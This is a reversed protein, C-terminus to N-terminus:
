IVGSTRLSSALDHSSHSGLYSFYTKKRWAALKGGTYIFELNIEMM